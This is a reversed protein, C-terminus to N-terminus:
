GVRSSGGGWVAARKQLGLKGALHDVHQAYWPHHVKMSSFICVIMFVSKGASNIIQIIWGAEQNTNNPQSVPYWLFVAGQPRWPILLFSGFSGLSGRHFRLVLWLAKGVREKRDALLFRTPGEKDEFRVLVPAGMWGGVWVGGGGCVCV